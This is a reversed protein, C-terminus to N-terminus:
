FKVNVGVMFTRPRPYYGLDVGQTLNDPSYGIEPDMGTYKTFTFLNLAAVYVRFQSAFKNKWVNSLNYGLTVNSIRLFDGKHIFFDSFNTFNRNDETLRPVSNSSGPGHWRDLMYKTYNGVQSSQDRYSQVLDNGLVGNAQISLDFGKYDAGISFGFTYSPWPNGIKTKDSNDIVGNGDVDVLRIDGPQANPQLLNGEKSRYNQVEAETQFIGNTKYGWFYGMPNGAQVRYFEPANNWLQNSSNDPHIIGDATPVNTVNNVNHAGNVSVRYNLDGIRNNYTIALEIGKNTVNGGNVWPADAGATALLPPHVLWNYSTKDYWDVSASLKGNLFRADFGIDTTQSIEWQLNTNTINRNYAGPTLGNAGEVSGFTYNTTQTQVQALYQFSGVNQNGVQGWSARVKLFELWGKAGDLLSSNTMVWGASVSPFYGWQHGPAFNSSGDARFTANLLITEKYNYQLRGYFSLRKNPSYPSGSISIRTGDKNTTSSIWAHDLDSFVSNTNSIYMSNGTSQYATSGVMVDFRNDGKNFGYSLLNDFILTKSNYMNQGVRDFTNFSYQSLKYKPLYSNGEGTEYDVNLTTRFTLNKIPEVQIYFNGLLRQKDSKNMSNYVMSRYPNAQNYLGVTDTPSDILLPNTQFAGRLANNYNGGVAIGNNDTHAFTLNEGVIIKDKYIKHESNFRFNYRDYNSLNAGGVVGAQSVYSLSTSYISTENGGSIGLAYNTTPANKVFMKDLWNTGAGMHAISDQTFYPLNGSNVAAENRLTAYEQANLMPIQRAVNQVGYYSDFTIQARSGSKGKKTTILIVGNSAQSGYIAASAADKLVDVSQIDANSLYSIDGTLVGDVVYLPTNNAISGAGRILVKMAEGPQGSTSTIQVGPTQGQLAQLVNTTSQKFLDEGKVQFNAGTNLAKKQTGYGIVVVEQLTAVDESLSVDIVSRTGVPEEKTAYGIFSFVLVDSASVEISYAGAADTTTGVNTGKVLITVGPLPTGSADTIKGTLVQKQAYVGALGTLFIFVSAIWLSRYVNKIM